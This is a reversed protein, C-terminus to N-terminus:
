PGSAKPLQTSIIGFASEIAQGFYSPWPRDSRSAISNQHDTTASELGDHDGGGSLLYYARTAGRYMAVSVAPCSRYGRRRWCRWLGSSMWRGSSTCARRGPCKELGGHGAYASGTRVLDSADGVDILDLRGNSRASSAAIVNVIDAGIRQRAAVYAGAPLKSDRDCARIRLMRTTRIIRAPTTGPGPAVSCSGGSSQWFHGASATRGIMIL